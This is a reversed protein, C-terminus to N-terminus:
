PEDMDSIAVKKARTIPSAQVQKAVANVDEVILRLSALSVFPYQLDTVALVRLVRDDRM